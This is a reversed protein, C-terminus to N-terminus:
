HVPKEIIPVETMFSNVEKIVDKISNLVVYFVKWSTIVSATVRIYEKFSTELYHRLVLLFAGISSARKSLVAFKWVVFKNFINRCQYTGTFKTVNQSDQSLERRISRNKLPLRNFDKTDECCFSVTAKELLKFSM